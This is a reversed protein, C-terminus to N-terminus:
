PAHTELYRAYFAMIEADIARDEAWAPDTHEPDSADAAYRATQASEIAARKAARDRAQHFAANFARAERLLNATDSM